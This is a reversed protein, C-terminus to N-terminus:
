DSDSDFTKKKGSSNGIAFGGRGRNGGRGRGFSGGRGRGGGGRGFSGGRGFKGGGGRGGDRGKNSNSYSIYVLRGDVETQNFNNFAEEAKTISDFEIFAFGKPRGSDQQRPLRVETAETFVDKLSDETSDYSLNRVFLINGKEGADGGGFSNRPGRKQPTPGGGSYDLYLPRGDYDIGQHNEITEKVASTDSFQVYAFGKHMDGKMPIRVSEVGSFMETLRQRIDDETAANPLNKVFMVANDDANGASANRPTKPTGFPLAKEFTLESGKFEVGNMGLVKDLDAPNKLDVHAFMKNDRKRIEICEVGKKNFFKELKSVTADVPVNRCLVTVTEEAKKATSGNLKAKSGKEEDEDEDSSSESEKKAAAAAKPEPKKEEEESSDESSSSSEKIAAAKTPTETKKKKAPAAEDESSDEESSEEAKVKKSAKAPKVTASEKKAAKAPPAEEEESSDDSEEDKKPAAKTPKASTKKKPAAEEEEESSSDSDSDKKKPAKSPKASAKKKPAAEEEESSSSDSDEKKKPAKAATKVKKPPAAEESESDDSESSSEEKKRKAAVKNAPQKKDKKPATTEVQMEEESESSSEEDSEAPKVPKPAKKTVKTSKPSM